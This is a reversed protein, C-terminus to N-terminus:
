VFAGAQVKCSPGVRRRIAAWSSRSASSALSVIASTPFYVHNEAGRSEYLVLGLPLEILELQPIWRKLEEDPLAALLRNLKIDHSTAIAARLPSATKAVSGHAKKPSSSHAM